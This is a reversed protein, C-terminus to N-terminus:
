SGLYLSSFVLTREARSILSTTFLLIRLPLDFACFPFSDECDFREMKVELLWIMFYVYSFVDQSWM